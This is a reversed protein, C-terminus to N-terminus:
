RPSSRAAPPADVACVLGKLYSGEPFSLAVPHDAPQALRGVIRAFRGADLAADAVIKQFLEVPMHGSCSFTLLIGGPRLLHFAQLNVDKYGRSAREVQARSDAFRPPDVVVVDFSRGAERLERLVRFADGQLLEARAPELDNRELQREVLALAAASADIATVRRAGALLAAVSFAGTYCFADLVEAGCAHEALRRRSDRQDLYFGTKHGSRVDVLLRSAGEVIEVLDPPEPGHLPGRRRELGEKERADADSREWLSCGPVRRALSEVIAERRREVGASLLQCVVTDAYRDVILGPLGDSESHVLRCARLAQPALLSERLAIAAGLRGDITAASIEEQPDFTWLRVRIQSAPSWTGRGCFRGDAALVAVVDGPAPGGEVREIAGSLVWPHRRLPAKERGPRLIVSPEAISHRSV